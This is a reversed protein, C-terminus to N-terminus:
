HKVPPNCRNYCATGFQQAETACTKKQADTKANKQCSALMAAVQKDCDQHCKILAQSPIPQVTGNQPFLSACTLLLFAFGLKM